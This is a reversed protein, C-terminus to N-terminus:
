SVTFHETCSKKNLFSIELNSSICKLIILFLIANLESNYDSCKFSIQANACLPSITCM